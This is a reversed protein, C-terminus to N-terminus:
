KVDFKYLGLKDPLIKGSLFLFTPSALPTKASSQVGEVVYLTDNKQKQEKAESAELPLLDTAHKHYPLDPKPPKPGDYRQAFAAVAALLLPLIRRIMVSIITCRTMWRPATRALLTARSVPIEMDFRGDRVAM